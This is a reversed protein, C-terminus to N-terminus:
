FCRDMSALDLLLLVTAKYSMLMPAAQEFVGLAGIEKLKQMNCAQDTYVTFTQVSVEFLFFVSEKGIKM